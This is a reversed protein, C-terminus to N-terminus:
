RIDDVGHLVGLTPKISISLFTDLNGLNNGMTVAAKVESCKKKRKIVESRWSVSPTIPTNKRTM